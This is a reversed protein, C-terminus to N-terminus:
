LPADIVYTVGRDESLVWSKSTDDTRKAGLKEMACQSRFNISNVYFVVYKCYQLAYNIMLKKFERNHHGGWYARGLFSWGIEVVGNSEDVTKFRSCGIIKEMKVDVIVLAGKSAISENFFETFNELTYRDKNQHQEWILPDSAVAYLPKFDSQILPRLSVLDNKLFPQLNVNM